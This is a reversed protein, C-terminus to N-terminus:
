FPKVSKTEDNTDANPAGRLNSETQPTPQEEVEESRVPQSGRVQLYRAMETEAWEQEKHLIEQELAQDHELEIQERQQLRYSLEFHVSCFTVVTLTLFLTISLLWNRNM